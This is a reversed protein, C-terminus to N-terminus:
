LGLGGAVEDFTEFAVCAVGAERCMKGLTSNKVAFVRDCERAIPFDNRGDGIFVTDRKGHQKLLKEMVHIKFDCAPTLEVDPPLKVIWRGQHEAAYCHYPVGPPLFARIYWDLGCSVVHLPWGVQKCRQAFEAFGKRLRVDKRVADLLEDATATIERYGAAMLDLTTAKGERYPPLLRERWDPWIYRDWILNTVDEETVTGDFDCLILM